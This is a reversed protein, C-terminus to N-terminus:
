SSEEDDIILTPPQKVSSENSNAWPLSRELLAELRRNEDAYIRSLKKIEKDTVKIKPFDINRLLPIRSILRKTLKPFYYNLRLYLHGPRAYYKKKLDEPKFQEDIELFRYIHRITQEPNQVIDHEYILILFQDKAFFKLWECLHSYYFGISIIGYKDDVETIRTTPAIGRRCVFHYYASIARQVPDRLSVLLKIDPYNKHILQPINWNKNNQIERGGSRNVCLYNPTFEGIAKEGQYNEFQDQYWKIGRSYNFPKDFFHLEKTAPAFVDPHQRIMKSLWTTGCKQGGILLFNPDVM